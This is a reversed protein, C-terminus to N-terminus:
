IFAIKILNKKSLNIYIFISFFDQVIVLLKKLLFVKEFFSANLNFINKYNMHNPYLM